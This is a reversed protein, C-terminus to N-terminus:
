IMYEIPKPLRFFGSGGPMLIEPKPGPWIFTCLTLMASWGLYRTM